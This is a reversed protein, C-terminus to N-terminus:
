DGGGDGGGDGWDNSSGGGGDGSRGDYHGSGLRQTIWIALSCIFVFVGIPCIVSYFSNESGVDTFHYSLGLGIIITILYKM